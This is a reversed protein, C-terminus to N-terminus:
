LGMGLHAYIGHLTLVMASPKCGLAYPIDISYYKGRFRHDTIEPVETKYLYTFGVNSIKPKYQRIKHLLQKPKIFYEAYPYGLSMYYQLQTQQINSSPKKKTQAPKIPKYASKRKTIM